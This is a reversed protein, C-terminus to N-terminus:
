PVREFALWTNAVNTLQRGGAHLKDLVETVQVTINGYDHWIIIGGPNIIQAAWESDRLVANRGHDGDIFIADAATPMPEGRLLLYFRPDIYALVGPSVPREIKQEPIEFQYDAGVDIGYYRQISAINKLVACATIGENVGIEIMVRPRVIALLALLADQEGPLMYERTTYGIVGITSKSICPLTM